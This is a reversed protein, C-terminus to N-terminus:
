TPKPGNEQQAPKPRPGDAQQTQAQAWRSTPSSSSGM